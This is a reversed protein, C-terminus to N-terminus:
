RWSGARPRNSTKRWRSWKTRISICGWWLMISRPQAPKEEISLVNGDDDFEAVGYREPDDGLVGVGYRAMTNPRIYRM